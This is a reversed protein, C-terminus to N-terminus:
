EPLRVDEGYMSALCVEAMYLYLMKSTAQIEVVDKSLMYDAKFKISIPEVQLPDGGPVRKLRGLAGTIVEDCPAASGLVPVPAELLAAEETCPETRRAVRQCAIRGQLPPFQSNHPASSAHEAPRALDPTPAAAADMSSGQQRQAPASVTVAALDGVVPPVVLDLADRTPSLDPLMAPVLTTFGHSPAQLEAGSAQQLAIPRGLTEAVPAAKSPLAQAKRAAQQKHASAARARIARSRQTNSSVKLPMKMIGIDRRANTVAAKQDMRM